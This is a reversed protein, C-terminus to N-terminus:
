EELWRLRIEFAPTYTVALPVGNILRMVWLLGLLEKLRNKLLTTLINGQFFANKLIKLMGMLPMRKLCIRKLLLIQCLIIYLIIYYLKIYFYFIFYLIICFIYIYIYVICVYLLWARLILLTQESLLLKSLRKVWKPLHETSLPYLSFHIILFCINFAYSFNLSFYLFLRGQFLFFSGIIWKNM